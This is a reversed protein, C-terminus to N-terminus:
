SMVASPEERAVGGSDSREVMSEVREDGANSM